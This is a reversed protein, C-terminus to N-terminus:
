ASPSSAGEERLTRKLIKGINSKPLEERFEIRKPVKYPALNAKLYSLMEEETVVSMEKLVILAKVTEGRYSDPAGIVAAEKVSPHTYIVEEVERPYVNYGSAIILDKKRDVIYVYGDEDVKAIDGTYLWGDRLAKKTENPLNWYGKMVQPGRIILEGPEGVPMEVTGAEQDVIKYETSPVGIGVSGPKRTAFPPNCHTTPSAESLGYGELITAGTKAEFDKLLQYPMPASGSNCLQISDVDRTEIGPLNTLAVYMTPVGPFTTPKEREITELVEDVKFRPLLIMQSGLYVSLNMCSTMGFVHFLPLITLVREEGAVLRGKFFECSQIVNAVLNRHTLMAGKSKGTTGGTYQLIAVDEGPDIAIPEHPKKASRVFAEFSTDGGEVSAEGAFSVLIVSELVTRSEVSKVKPYLSDLTVILRAGADALIEELEREVLMPNLQSVIGGATLIGYYSIIFQPCNPLLLAVRDGKQIGREQLASAFAYVLQQFESYTFTKGYFSMATKDAYKRVADELMQPLSLNPIDVHKQITDPYWDFGSKHSM